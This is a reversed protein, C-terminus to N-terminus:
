KPPIPPYPMSTASGKKIADKSLHQIVLDEAAAFKRAPGKSEFHRRAEALAVPDKILYAKGGEQYWLFEGPITEQLAYAHVTALNSIMCHHKERVYMWSFPQTKTTDSQQGAFLSMGCILTTFATTCWRHSLLTM